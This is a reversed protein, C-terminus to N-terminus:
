LSKESRLKPVSYLHINFASSSSFKKTLWPKAEGFWKNCKSVEPWYTVISALIQFHLMLHVLCCLTRTVFAETLTMNFLSTYLKPIYNNLLKYIQKYIVYMFHKNVNTLFTESFNFLKLHKEEEVIIQVLRALGSPIILCNLFM